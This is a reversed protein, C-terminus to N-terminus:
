EDDSETNARAGSAKAMDLARVMSRSAELLDDERSKAGRQGPMLLKKIAHQTAPCTVGFADLVSYVDVLTQEPNNCSRITRSYKSM